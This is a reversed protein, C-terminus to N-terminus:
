CSGNVTDTGDQVITDTGAGTCNYTDAGLEGNMFDGLPGDTLTDTGDRGFLSVAEAAAAANITDNGTNGIVRNIDTQVDDNNGYGDTDDNGGGWDINLNGVGTYPFGFTVTDFGAAGTGGGDGNYDDAGEGGGFFDNGNATPNNCTPDGNFTDGGDTDGNATGASGAFTNAGCSGTLTDGLTSGTISEINSQINNNDSMSNSCISDDAAGDLDITLAQSTCTYTAGTVIGFVARDIGNGGDLVDDANGNPGPDLRDNDDGGSITEAGQVSGVLVDNGAGGNMDVDDQNSGVATATDNMDNLNVVVVDVGTDACTVTDADTQTCGAGATISPSEDFTYTSGPDDIVVSNTEGAGATYTITGAASTVTAGSAFAPVAALAGLAVVFTLTAKRLRSQLGGATSSAM